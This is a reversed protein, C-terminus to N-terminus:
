TVDQMTGVMRVAKGQANLYVQRRSAVTREEGDPRVIRFEMEQAGAAGGAAMDARAAAALRGLDAPHVHAVFDQFRRVSDDQPVGMLRYTMESWIQTNSELDWQWSGVQAVTEANKLLDSTTRLADLTNKQATIDRAAAIFYSPRGAADFVPAARGQVFILSGDQRVMRFENETVPSTPDTRRMPEAAAAVDEAAVSLEWRRGILDEARDFGLLSATRPNAMRIVGSADWMVTADPSVEFLARYRAESDRLTDELRKRDTFDQVTCLMRSPKGAADCFVEGRSRVVRETGGPRVMRYDMYYPDAGGTLDAIGSKVAAVDDPHVRVMFDEFTWSPDAAEYGMIRFLGESGTARGTVLDLQWIGIEAVREVASLLDQVFEPAVEFRSPRETDAM